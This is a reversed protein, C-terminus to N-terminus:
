TTYFRSRRFPDLCLIFIGILTLLGKIYQTRKPLFSMWSASKTFVMEGSFFNFHYKSKLLFVSARSELPLCFLLYIRSAALPDPVEFHTKWDPHIVYATPTGSQFDSFPPEVGGGGVMFLCPFQFCLRLYALRLLSVGFTPKIRPVNVRGIM